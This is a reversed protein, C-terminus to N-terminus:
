DEVLGAGRIKALFEDVDARLTQEDVEYTDLMIKMLEDISIDKQLTDWITKGTENVTIMRNNDISEAGIPIIFYEGVIERLIYGSKIKM